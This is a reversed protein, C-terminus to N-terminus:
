NGAEQAAAIEEVTASASISPVTATGDADDDAPVEAPFAERVARWESRMATMAAKAEEYAEPNAQRDAKAAVYAKRVDNWGSILQVEEDTYNM